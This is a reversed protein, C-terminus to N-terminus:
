APPRAAPTLGHRRMVDGIRALDPPRGASQAFVAAVDRFCAPGLVGPTIICLVKADVEGLCAELPRVGIPSAEDRAFCWGRAAAHPDNSATRTQADLTLGRKCRSTPIRTATSPAPLPPTADANSKAWCPWSADNYAGGSNPEFRSAM